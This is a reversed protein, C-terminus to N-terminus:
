APRIHSRVAEVLEPSISDLRHDQRAHRAVQVLIEDETSCVWSAECNPVVEGCAFSKM